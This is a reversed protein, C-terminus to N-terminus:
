KDPILPDLCEVGVDMGHEVKGFVGQRVHLATIGDDVISGDVWVDAAGIKEIIGRCFTGNDGESTSQRVLLDAFANTDVADTGTGTLEDGM